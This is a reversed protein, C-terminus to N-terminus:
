VVNAKTNLACKSSSLLPADAKVFTEIKQNESVLFPNLWWVAVRKNLQHATTAMRERSVFAVILGGILSGFLMFPIAELVISAFVIALSNLAGSEDGTPIFLIAAVLFFAPLYDIVRGNTPAKDARGTHTAPNLKQRNPM